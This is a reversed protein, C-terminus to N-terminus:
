SMTRVADVMRVFKSGTEMAEALFVKEDKIGTSHIFLEMTMCEKDYSSSGIIQALREWDITATFLLKHQDRSSDNDNLHLAILRDKVGELFELGGGVIHGHGSDYCIGVDEPPHRKLAKELTKHNSLPFLNEFAIRVGWKRAYPIVAEMSKEFREWFAQKKEDQEPETPLHLVIVDTGLRVAMQMRNKLLAVGALRADEQESLYHNKQGQTAHLDNVTLAYTKLWDAIQGVEDEAYLYDDGWHHCWHIHTFGAEAIQRLYPDPNDKDEKKYDTNIALM